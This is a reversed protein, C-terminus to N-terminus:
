QSAGLSESSSTKLREICCSVGLRHHLKSPWTKRPLLPIPLSQREFASSFSAFVREDQSADRHAETAVSVGRRCCLLIDTQEAGKRVDFEQETISKSQGAPVYGYRHAYIGILADSDSIEEICASTAELPRAGFVEMRVGQQGLREIARAAAERHGILDQYTSSLFIKM